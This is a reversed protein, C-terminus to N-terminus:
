AKKFNLIQYILWTYLYCHVYLKLYNNHNQEECANM